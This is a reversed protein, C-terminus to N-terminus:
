DILDKRQHPTVNHQTSKTHFTVRVCVCVRVCVGVVCQSSRVMGKKGREREDMKNERENM